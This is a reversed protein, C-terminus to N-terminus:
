LPVKGLIDTHKELWNAFQRMDRAFGANEPHVVEALARFWEPTVRSGTADLASITIDVTANLWGGCEPCEFLTASFPGETQKWSCDECELMTVQHANERRM